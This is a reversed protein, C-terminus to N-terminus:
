QIVRDWLNGLAGGFILALALAGSSFRHGTKLLLVFVVGLAVLSFAILFDLRYKSNSEAFMSFAAGPNLVHTLQFVGPIVPIASNLPINLEVLHKTLRDLVLVVGAIVFLIPRADRLSKLM